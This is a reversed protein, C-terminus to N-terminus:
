TVGDAPPAGIRGKDRDAATAAVIAEIAEDWRIHPSKELAEKVRKELDEPPKFGVV